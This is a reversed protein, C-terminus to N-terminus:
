QKPWPALTCRDNAEVFEFFKIREDPSRNPSHLALMWTGDFRKFLMSHGGGVFLPEPDHTWPGTINGSRSRAVGVAYGKDTFSSWLMWLTGAATRYLCPGDTVYKDGDRVPRVWPADSAAFLTTIPGITRSLDDSLRVACMTGDGIQVWEHCFVMWPNGDELWLTGDLAFWDHPTAADDSHPRFPGLPSDARFIQTGRCRDAASLTGFLYYKGRYRHVEPAWFDRTGWFNEPPTFVTTPESWHLLDKSRYCEWGRAGKTRNAANAYLYYTQTEPVPLIFPDRVRIDAVHLPFTDDARVAASLLLSVLAATTATSVSPRTSGALIFRM